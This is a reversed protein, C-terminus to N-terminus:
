RWKKRGYSVEPKRPPLLVMQYQTTSRAKHTRALVPFLRLSFFPFESQVEPVTEFDQRGGEFVGYLHHEHVRRSGIWWRWSRCKGAGLRGDIMTWPVSGTGYRISRMRNWGTRDRHNAATAPPHGDASRRVKPVRHIPPEDTNNEPTGTLLRSREASGKARSSGSPQTGLLCTFNAPM